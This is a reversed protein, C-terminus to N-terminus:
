SRNSREIIDLGYSQLENAMATVKDLDSDTPERDEDMQVMFWNFLSLAGAYFTSRIDTYQASTLPLDPFVMRRFGEFMEAMTQGKDVQEEPTKNM